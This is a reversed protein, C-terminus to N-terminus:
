DPCVKLIFGEMIIIIIIIIILVVVVVVVHYQNEDGVDKIDTRWNYLTRLLTKWDRLGSGFNRAIGYDRPDNKADWRGRM